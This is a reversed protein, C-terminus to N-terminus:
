HNNKHHRKHRHHKRKKHHHHNDYNRGIAYGTIGGLLLGLVLEDNRYPDPAYHRQPYVEYCRDPYVRIRINQNYYPDWRTHYVPECVYDALASTSMFATAVIVAILKKM